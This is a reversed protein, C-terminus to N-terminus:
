IEQSVMNSIVRPDRMVDIHSLMAILADETPEECCVNQLHFEVQENIYVSNFTAWKFDHRMMQDRM